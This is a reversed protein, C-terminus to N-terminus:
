PEAETGPNNDDGDASVYFATVPEEDIPAPADGAPDKEEDAPDKEEDAPDKKEEEDGENGNASPDPNEDAENGSASPDPNEDGENGNDSPDSNKDDEGGSASPDPNESGEDNLPQTVGPAPQEENDAFATISLLSVAMAAILLLAILKKFNSKKM